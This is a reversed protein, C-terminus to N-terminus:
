RDSCCQIFYQGVAELFMSLQRIVVLWDTQEGLGTHGARITKLEKKNSSRRYSTMPDQPVEVEEGLWGYVFVRVKKCAGKQLLALTTYHNSHQVPLCSTQTRTGVWGNFGVPHSQALWLSEASDVECPQKQLALNSLLIIYAAKSEKLIFFPLIYIYHIYTHIFSYNLMAHSFTVLHPGM